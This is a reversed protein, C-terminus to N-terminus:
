KKLTNDISQTSISYEKTKYDITIIYEEGKEISPFKEKIDLEVDILYIDTTPITTKIDGQSSRFIQYINNENALLIQENAETTEENKLNINVVYSTEQIEQEPLNTTPEKSINSIGCGSIIITGIIVGVYLKLKKFNKSHIVINKINM